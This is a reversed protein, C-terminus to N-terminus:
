PRSGRVGMGDQLEYNGLSVVPESADLAGKVAILGHQELGAQVAVRRAKGDRVQFVYAGETDRLLASRPVVWESQLNLQIEARVRTGPMLGGDPVNVLVDVFQTQPNIMGFVQTVRGAVERGPDFVPSVRVAMGPRVRAVEDPEVGLVVRQGGARAMQLAPAGAALREGQGAQLSMVVGDFPAKVRELTRGAGITEQARLAAQADELNKRAAALQSQTALQTNLLQETRTVESSAFEVAHRAQLYGLAADAGTAFELLPAGKKVVQGPSVLLAVIQGSRPLSISQLAATDPSVVGYGSVTEAMQQQKLMVTEVEVSPSEAAMLTASLMVAPLCYARRMM